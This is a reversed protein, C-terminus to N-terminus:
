WLAMLTKDYRKTEKLDGMMSRNDHFTCYYLAAYLKSMYEDKEESM